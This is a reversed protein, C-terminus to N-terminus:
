QGGVSEASLDTAPACEACRGTTGADAVRCVDCLDEVAVEIAPEPREVDPEREPAMGTRADQATM